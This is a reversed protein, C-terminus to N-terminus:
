ASYTCEESLWGAYDSAYNAFVSIPILAQGSTRALNAVTICHNYHM